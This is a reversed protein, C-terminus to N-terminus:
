LDGGSPPLISVSGPLDAFIAEFEVTDLTERAVLQRALIDLRDRYRELVERARLQAREMIARVELDIQAAIHDSYIQGEGVDRGMFIIQEPRVLAQPGLKESMGFRTVMSRAMESARAIDNAAGTTTDGFVLEESVYGALLGAIKDEFESQSQLYRDEAPLAMTYGLALGRGIITVKSVPDCKPLIRQVLAHGGEHYAIILKEPDSIIRSRREPGAMVRELAEQFEAVGILKQNRRAALIAAENVLNALDAGSFGPSQKAVAELSLGPALPKGKAHVALIAARGKMDPLGLAVQRDFRGPRLLAPDLTDVRNTAAIVIVNTTTDFGDMEVLIQNLTQEREDNSNGLGAGRARGVADLEDIFVIAPANKKAQEFLSRARAAGTGVFLEVFESGSIAFFPVEAEGAVAKALLSKGCGPPGILLVGRPIRAGLATFKEPFKLFEVVEVLEAKAEDVGAVDAFTVGSKNGISMRARNQGFSLAQNTAGQVRRLIFFLFAGILLLPLLTGVILGLWTSASSPSLATFIIKTPDQGGAAAATTTDTFASQMGVGPVLVTYTNSSGTVTVILNQDQSTVKTVRGARVDALYDSYPKSAPATPTGLLSFIFTVLALSLLFSM